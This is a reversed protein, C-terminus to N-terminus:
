DNLNAGGRGAAPPAQPAAPAPQQARAPGLAAALSVTAVVTSAWRLISRETTVIGGKATMSEKFQLDTAAGRGVSAALSRRSVVKARRQCSQPCPTASGDAFAGGFGAM